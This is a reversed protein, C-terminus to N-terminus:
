KGVEGNGSLWIAASRTTDFRSFIIILMVTIPVSLIMGVIGWITGWFALSILVVLSSINLSSGMLKPELVNGVLVQITGVVMLVLIFPGFAAFQLLAMLAPFLTAILSGITPIFNLLFIVAAWFLPFDVGILLLAVYSAVATILSILTKLSIYRSISQDIHDLM